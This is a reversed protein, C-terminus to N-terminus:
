GELVGAEEIARRILQKGEETIPLLPKRPDGGHYGAVEAAYKVGAVGFSGSVAKNLKILMYHLRRAKDLDL